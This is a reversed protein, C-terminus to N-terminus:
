VHTTRSHINPTVRATTSHHAAKFGHSRALNHHCITLPTHVNSCNSVQSQATAPYVRVGALEALPEPLFPGTASNASACAQPAHARLPTSTRSWDPGSQPSTASHEVKDPTTKGSMQQPEQQQQRGRDSRDHVTQTPNQASKGVAKQFHADTTQLYHKMAVGKSNGIWSCVVHQPHEDALETERTARLNQFLKPWPKLGARHIIKTLQTRLNANQQRYRTIVYEAGPEALEFVAELHPRLEPFIPLIRSGGGELHETKPSRILLKDNAWDVDEWRLSLHESPCRLGGYRSLAFLLRWQANPCADLVKTTEERTIFYDRERNAGVASKLDVFPNSSLLKRRTAARFFQKAIGCNKRVTNEALGTELLHLRWLDATGESIDRLPKSEGFFGILMRRTNKYKYRTSPKVDSRSEIYDTLYEGLLVTERYKVLGVKALKKALTEDLSAVWKATDGEVPQKSIKATLLHEIRIKIAVADRKAMKGLRITQRRGNVDTYQIERRGNPRNVLSAM